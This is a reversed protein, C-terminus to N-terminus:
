VKYESRAAEGFYMLHIRYADPQDLYPLYAALQSSGAIDIRLRAMEARRDFPSTHLRVSQMRNNRVVILRRWIFGSKVLLFEPEARYAFHAVRGLAVWLLFATFLIALVVAPWGVLAAGLTLPIGVMLCRRVSRRPARQSARSWGAEPLDVGPLVTELVHKTEERHLIPAILQRSSTAARAIGGATTVQIRVRESFRHLPGTSVVVSQVRGLPTTSKMKTILGHSTRLDEGVMTVRHEHFRILTIVVSFVRVLVLFAAVAAFMMMVFEASPAAEGRLVAIVRTWLGDSRTLGLREALWEAGDGYQVYFIWLTGVVVMGRGDLLGSLVLERTSLRVLDPNEESPVHVQEDRGSHSFIRKRLSEFAARPIAPMQAEIQGAGGTEISVGVTNTMRHFVTERADLNQIRVFPIHREQKRFFGWRLILEGGAASYRFTLYKILAAAFVPVPAVLAAFLTGVGSSRAVLFTTVITFALDRIHKGIEVVLAIPHLKGESPRM